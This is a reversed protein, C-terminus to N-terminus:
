LRDIFFIILIPISFISVTSTILINFLGLDGSKTYRSFLITALLFTPMGAQLIIVRGIESDISLTFLLIFAILPLLLLKITTSFFMYSVYDKKIKRWKESSVEQFLMGIYMMALPAALNSLLSTLEMMLSPLQMGTYAICLSGVLTILPVNIVNRLNSLSFKEGKLLIIGVTFITLVTTADYISAYLGATSGFLMFSIPIGYFSTNGCASLMAMQKSESISYKFYRGFIYGLTLGMFSLFLGFSFILVLNYWMRQNIETQFISQFIVSPIAINIITFSIFERTQKTVDVKKSIIFGIM